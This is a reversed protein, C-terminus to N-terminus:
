NLFSKLPGLGTLQQFFRLLVIDKGCVQCPDLSQGWPNALGSDRWILAHEEAAYNDCRFVDNFGCLLKLTFEFLFDVRVKRTPDTKSPLLINVM